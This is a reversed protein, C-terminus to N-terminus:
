SPTYFCVTLFPILKDTFVVHVLDDIHAESESSTGGSRGFTSVFPPSMDSIESDRREQDFDGTAGDVHSTSDISPTRSHSKSNTAKHGTKKYARAYVDLPEKSKAKRIDTLGCSGNVGNISSKRLKESSNIRKTTGTKKAISENSKNVNNANQDHLTKGLAVYHVNETSLVKKRKVQNVSKLETQTDISRDTGKETM